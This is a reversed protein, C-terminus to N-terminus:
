CYKQFANYKDDFSKTSVLNLGSDFHVPDATSFDNGWRLGAAKAANAFCKVDAHSNAALCASNCYSGDSLSLNLDIAQGIFHNSRTAPTVIANTITVGDKRFSSTPTVTVKCSTAANMLADMGSKWAPDIRVSSTLRSHTYTILTCTQAMCCSLSALIVVAILTNM